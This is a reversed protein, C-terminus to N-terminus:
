ISDTGRRRRLQRPWMVPRWFGPISRWLFSGTCSHTWKSRAIERHEDAIEVPGRIYVESGSYSNPDFVHILSVRASFLPASRQVYAAMAVCSPSFDVPFLISAILGM